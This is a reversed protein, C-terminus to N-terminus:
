RRDAQWKKRWYQRQWLDVNRNHEALTESFVHTGDNRSVFYLYATDAPQAAALLSRVSPSCIPSPPLGLRMYSNYPTDRRLDDRRLNGDWTGDLKKGYIITPDAYLGIGRSLRNAYVSAVLTREDERQTEKEVISALTVLERVSLSGPELLPAVENDFHKRFSAVLLDIVKAETTKSAFHYTDPYLYGELNEAKADLDAIREVRQIERLFAEREGFGQQVMADVMEFATLGEILTLPRVFVEGRILKDMLQRLSLPSKVEYEGAKLPPDELWYILYYRAVRADRLLGAQELNTLIRQASQGPEVEFRLPLTATAFPADLRPLLWTQYYYFAAAAILLLLVFLVYFLRKLLTLFGGKKGKKAKTKPKAKTV